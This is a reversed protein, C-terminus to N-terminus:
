DQKWRGEAPSRVFYTLGGFRGTLEHAIAEFTEASYAHGGNDFVPLLIQMLYM